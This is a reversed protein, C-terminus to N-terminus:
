RVDSDEALLPAGTEGPRSKYLLPLPGYNVECFRDFDEALQAPIMIVNAQLYGSVMGSTHTSLTGDRCRRRVDLGTKFVNAMGILIQRGPYALPVEHVVARRRVPM